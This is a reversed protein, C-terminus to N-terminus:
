GFFQLMDLMSVNGRFSPFAERADGQVFNLNQYNLKEVMRQAQRIKRADYDFGLVKREFGNESLYQGLIGMGCGIDLLDFENERLAEHVSEYVPDISRKSQAYLRYYESVFFRGLRSPISGGRGSSEPSKGPTTSEPRDTMELPGKAPSDNM